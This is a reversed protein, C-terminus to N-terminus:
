QEHVLTNATSDAIEQIQGESASSDVALVDVIGQYPEAKILDQNNRLFGIQLRSSLWKM